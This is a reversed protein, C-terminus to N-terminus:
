QGRWIWEFLVFYGSGILFQFVVMLAIVWKPASRLRQSFDAAEAIVLFVIVLFALTLIQIFHDIACAIFRNGISALAFHLAVREPTEIVLTEDTTIVAAM